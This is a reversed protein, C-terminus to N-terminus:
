RPLTGNALPKGPEDHLCLDVGAPIFFQVHAEISQLQDAEVFREPEDRDGLVLQRLHDPHPEQEAEALHDPAVYAGHPPRGPPSYILDDTHLEGHKLFLVAFSLFFGSSVHLNLCVMVFTPKGFLM